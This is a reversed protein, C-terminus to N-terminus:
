AGFAKLVAIADDLFGKVGKVLELVESPNGPTLPTGPTLSVDLLLESTAGARAAGALPAAGM